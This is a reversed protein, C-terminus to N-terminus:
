FLNVQKLVGSVLNPHNKAGEARNYFSPCLANNKYIKKVKQRSQRWFILFILFIVREPLREVIAGFACFIM